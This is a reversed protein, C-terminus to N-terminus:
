GLRVGDWSNRSELIDAGSKAKVSDPNFAVARFSLSLFFWGDLDFDFDENVVEECLFGVLNM